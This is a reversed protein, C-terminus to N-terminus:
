REAKRRRRLERQAQARACERSCYKVGSTRYQGYEARGRQRVFHQRCTENSCRRIHAGEALHNYMQLFSVSYVTPRRDALDGFGISFDSLAARMTEELDDLRLQILLERYSELTPVLDPAQAHLAARNEETADPEVLEELGGPRQTALLTEVSAHALDLYLNIQDRHVGGPKRSDADAPSRPFAAVKEILEENHRLDLDDHDLSFLRGYRRFLDAAAELDDHPTEVLERLYFDDPLETLPQNYSAGVPWLVWDGEVWVEKFPALPPTPVASGPWLTPRFRPDVYATM